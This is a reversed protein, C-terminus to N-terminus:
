AIVMEIDHTKVELKAASAPVAASASEAASAPSAHAAFQSCYSINKVGKVSEEVQNLNFSSPHATTINVKASPSNQLLFDVIGDPIPSPRLGAKFAKRLKAAEKRSKAAVKKLVAKEMYLLSDYHFPILEVELSKLNCLTTFKVELLDPVLSLVQLTTSTVILSEVRVLEQLWTLLVLAYEMLAPFDKADINVQRVSSLGNGCIKQVPRGTFTFTCLSPTSLKTKPFKFSFSHMILDVLTESSISLIQADKVKCNSIVLSNLKTFASFPEACGNEGGCFTFHTLDLSTLLPVNLSEPFLSETMYCTPHISLKLSTLARCKSVCSMIPCSDATFDIGLRQIHTNHSCVYNLIVKLLKTEIIGMRQLDLAHLTVSSDRRTLIRTVFTAFRKMTSFKSSHLILTPIRKWLYRWRTSLVCTQVAYKSNLFSLIHLLVCDPLESLSDENDHRARKEPPIMTVGDLSKSM